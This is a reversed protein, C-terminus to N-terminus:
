RSGSHEQLDFPPEGPCQAYIGGEDILLIERYRYSEVFLRATVRTVRAPSGQCYIAQEKVSFEGEHLM